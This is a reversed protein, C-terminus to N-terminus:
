FVRLIDRALFAGLSLFFILLPLIVVLTMAVPRRHKTTLFFVPVAVPWLCWMYLQHGLTLPSRWAVSESQAFYVIAVGAAGFAFRPIEPNPTELFGLAIGLIFLIVGALLIRREHNTTSRIPTLRASSTEM